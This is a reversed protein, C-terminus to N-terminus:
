IVIPCSKSNENCCTILLCIFSLYLSTINIVYSDPSTAWNNSLKGPLAFGQTRHGIRCVGSSTVQAWGQWGLVCFCSPQSGPFLFPTPFLFSSLSPLLPFFLPSSLLFFSPSPPLLASLPEASTQWTWTGLDSALCRLFLGYDLFSQTFPQLTCTTTM